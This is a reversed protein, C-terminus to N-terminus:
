KPEVVTFSRLNGPSALIDGVSCFTQNARGAKAQALANAMFQAQSSNSAMMFFDLEPTTQYGPASTSNTQVIIGDLAESLATAPGNVSQLQTADNTNFLETLLAALRWDSTPSLITADNADFDGTWNEWTNLGVIPNAQTADVYELLNTAKLYITQWPTGRHVRGLTTLPLSNTAPFDWDDSSWVLPDRYALNYSANNPNDRLVGVIGELQNNRGWPQYRNGQQFLNATVSPLPSNVLDDSIGTTSSANLDSTLYHVLPDNAQRLTYAYAARTPTYPAQIELNTNM